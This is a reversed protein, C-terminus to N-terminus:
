LVLNGLQVSISLRLHRMRERLHEVETTNRAWAMRDVKYGGQSNRGKLKKLEYEVIRELDLLILNGEEVLHQLLRTKEIPTAASQSIAECTDHLDCILSKLTTVDNILTEVQTPADVLTKCKALLGAVRDAGQTVAICSALISLPDM